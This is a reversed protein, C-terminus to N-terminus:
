ASLWQWASVSCAMVGVGGGDQGPEEGAADVEILYKGPPLSGPSLTSIASAMRARSSGPGGSDSPPSHAQLVLGGVCCM